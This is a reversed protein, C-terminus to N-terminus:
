ETILKDGLRVVAERTLAEPHEACYEVFHDTLGFFDYAEDANPESGLIEDLSKGTRAYYYGEAWTLLSLRTGKPGIVLMESFVSCPIAGIDPVGGMGEPLKLPAAASAQLLGAALAATILIRMPTKM